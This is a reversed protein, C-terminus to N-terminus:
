SQMQRKIQKLFLNKSLQIYRQALKMWITPDENMRKADKAHM